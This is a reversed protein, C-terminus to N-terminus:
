PFSALDRAPEAGLVTQYSRGPCDPAFLYYWGSGAVPIGPDTYGTAEILKGSLNTALTAVSSLPGRVFRVDFPTNWTFTTSNVALVTAGFVVAEQSPNAIFPCNDAANVVTDADSDLERSYLEPKGITDQDQLYVAYKEDSSIEYGTVGNAGSAATVNIQEAPLDARIAASM